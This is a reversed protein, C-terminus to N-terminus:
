SYKYTAGSYKPHYDKWEPAGLIKEAPIEKGHLYFKINKMIQDNNKNRYVWRLESATIGQGYNDSKNAISQVSDILGDTCFMVTKNRVLTQFELGAKSTKAWLEDIGCKSFTSKIINFNSHNKLFDRFCYGRFDDNLLKRITHDTNYRNPRIRSWVANTLTDQSIIDKKSLTNIARIANVVKERPKDLGYVIDGPRFHLAADLQNGQFTINKAQVVSPSLLVNQLDLDVGDPMGEVGINWMAKQEAHITVSIVSEPLKEPLIINSCGTLHLTQLSPSILNDISTKNEPSYDRISLSSLEAPVSAIGEVANGKIELYRVSEPVGSVQCHCLKLHEVGEPVSHIFSSNNLEIHLSKITVPLDNIKLNECGIVSLRQINGPLGELSLLNNCNEVTVSTIENPLPPLYEMDCDKVHLCGSSKAEELQIHTIGNKISADTESPYPCLTRPSQLQSIPLM